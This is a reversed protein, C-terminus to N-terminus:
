KTKGKPMRKIINFVTSFDILKKAKFFSIAPPFVAGSDRSFEIEKRKVAILIDNVRQEKSNLVLSGGIRERDEIDLIANRQQLYKPPVGSVMGHILFFFAGILMTVDNM